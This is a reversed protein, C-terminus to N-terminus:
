KLCYISARFVYASNDSIFLHAIYTEVKNQQFSQDSKKFLNFM